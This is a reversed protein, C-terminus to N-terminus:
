HHHHDHPGHDHDPEEGFTGELLELALLQAPTGAVEDGPLEELQPLFEVAVDVEDGRGADTLTITARGRGEALHEGTAEEAADLADRAARLDEAAPARGGLRALAQAAAWIRKRDVEDRPEIGAAAEIEQPTPM